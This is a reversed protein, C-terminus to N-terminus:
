TLTITVEDNGSSRAAQFEFEMVRLGGRDAYKPASLHCVPAAITIINGATAGLVMSLIKATGSHFYSLFDANSTARLVMECTLVGTPKRNTVIFSLIGETQNFDSREVVENGLRLMLKEIIAAYSGFTTVSSKVIPPVTSDYTPTVVPVDTGLEYTGQMTFNLMPVEGATLDIECDGACGRMVHQIGDFNVYITCTMIGSSPAYVVNTGPSATEGYDCAQLLDGWRPATGATGSGKLHVSFKLESSTKGRINPYVSRDANGAERDKMDARIALDVNFAMIAHTGAGPVAVTGPTSEVSAWLTTQKTYM